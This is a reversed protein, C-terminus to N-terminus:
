HKIIERSYQIGIGYAGGFNKFLDTVGQYTASRAWDRQMELVYQTASMMTAGGKMMRTVAMHHAETSVDGCADTIVYVDYGDEIASLVPGVICVSTWLGAIVLKKKGKATIAKHANVDEWANMTTRDIYGSTAQPYTALLEPFVPGSFSKEAVTTVITPVNFIKSGGAILAVNNRLEDIGINKVPFAMQSEHDILVLAHNTPTLLSAAPKQAFVQFCLCACLAAALMLKRKMISYKNSILLAVEFMQFSRFENPCFERLILAREISSKRNNNYQQWNRSRLMAARKKVLGANKEQNRLIARIIL